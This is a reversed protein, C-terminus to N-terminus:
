TTVDSKALVKCAKARREHYEARERNREAERLHYGVHWSYSKATSEKSRVMREEEEAAHRDVAAQGAAEAEEFTAYCDDQSPTFTNGLYVRVTYPEVVIGTVVHARPDLASFEHETVVGRPATFGKGCYGCPTEIAEGNGLIVTVACKSFCVPCPVTKEHMGVNVTYVVDGIKFRPENTM